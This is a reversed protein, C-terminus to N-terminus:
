ECGACIDRVWAEYDVTRDYETGWLRDMRELVAPSYLFVGYIVKDAHPDVHAIVRDGEVSLAGMDELDKWGDPAVEWPARGFLSRFHSVAYGDQFNHLLYRHAEEDDDSPVAYYTRHRDVVRLLSADIGATTEYNKSTEYFHSGFSHAYASVGVGLLSANYDRWEVIQANCASEDRSSPMGLRPVIGHERLIANGWSLMKRRREVQERDHEPLTAHVPRFGSLHLSDPEVSLAFSVDSQFAEFSQGDMGAMVDMNVLIGREHAAKTVSRIKDAKNFRNARRQAEADLSQVGITVRNVRGVRQMVDLKEDNLSDPNTEVTIQTTQPITFSGHMAGFLQEMQARTMLSPTGGGMFVSSIPLDDVLEGYARLDKALQDVYRAMSGDAITDTMSCYCFHCRVTCFPFHIYLGLRNPASGERIRRATERWGNRIEEEPTPVGIAGVYPYFEQLVLTRWKTVTKGDSRQIPPMIRPDTSLAKYAYFSAKRLREDRGSPARRPRSIPPVPAPFKLPDPPLRELSRKLDRLFARVVEPTPDADCRVNFSVTPRSLWSAHEDPARADVLIEHGELELRARVPVAQPDVSWDKLGPLDGALRGFALALWEHADTETPHSSQTAATDSM